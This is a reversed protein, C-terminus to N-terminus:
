GHKNMQGTFNTAVCNVKRKCQPIQDEDYSVISFDVKVQKISNNVNWEDLPGFSLVQNEWLSLKFFHNRLNRKIQKVGSFFCM